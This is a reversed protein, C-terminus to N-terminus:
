VTVLLRKVLSKCIIRHFPRVPLFYLRGLFNNYKVLTTLSITAHNGKQHRMVSVSFNLHRDNEAMIIENDNRDIVTFYVARSGVPYYDSIHTNKKHGGGKLGVLKVLTNRIAMLIDTWRPTQFIDTTIKDIGDNTQLEVSFSDCYNYETFDKLIVSNEPIKNTRQVKKM